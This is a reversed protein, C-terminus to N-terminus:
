SGLSLTLSPLGSSRQIQEEDWHPWKSPIEREQQEANCTQKIPGNLAPSLAWARGGVVTTTFYTSYISSFLLSSEAEGVGGGM